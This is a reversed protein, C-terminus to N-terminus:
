NSAIGPGGFGSRRGGLVLVTGLLAWGAGVLFVGFLAAQQFMPGYTEDEVLGWRDDGLWGLPGGVLLVLAAMRAIAAFWPSMGRWLAGIRLVLAGFVGASLWLSLSALSGIFGITGIFPSDRTAGLVIWSSYWVGALVVVATAVTALRRNAAVQRDHYALAVAAGALGFLVLRITNNAREAFPNWSVFAWLLLAAGVIGIVGLLRMSRSPEFSTLSQAMTRDKRLHEGVASSVLDVLTRIWTIAVGGIGAGARADRIQDGLLLVMEDGYRDRFGRPYLRLLSAYLRQGAALGAEPGARGPAQVAAM